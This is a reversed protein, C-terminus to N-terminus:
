DSFPWGPRGRLAALDEDKRAMDEWEPKLELARRLHGLAPDLHGALAEACATNYLTATVIVSRAGPVIHRVDARKQASRHMWEMTAAYGRGLWESLFALEPYNDARAVGCLDFGLAHAKQKIAPATLVGM